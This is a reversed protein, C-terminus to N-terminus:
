LGDCWLRCGCCVCCIQRSKTLIDPENLQLQVLRLLNYVTQQLYTTYNNYLIYILHTLSTYM